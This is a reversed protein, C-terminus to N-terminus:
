ADVDVLHHAVDHWFYQALTATTFTSGNSREGVHGWADDSVAAFGDAVRDGATVLEEAVTTPDQEGYREEVATVDQDWNAFRAGAGGPGGHEVVLALREDFVTFVDRVHCGYELVSWTSPDPRRAADPRALASRWRPLSARVRAPVTRPDVDGTVLGCEPCAADLVWTWDKTDPEIDM